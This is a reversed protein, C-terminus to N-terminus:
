CSHYNNFCNRSKSICFPVDCITCKWDTRVEKEKTSCHACKRRTKREPQHASQDKRVSPSVSARKISIPSPSASVKQKRKQFFTKSVLSKSIERRVNKLTIKEGTIKTYIIHSNVIAADFFFSFYEIGGSIVKEIL